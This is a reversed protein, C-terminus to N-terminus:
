GYKWNEWQKLDSKVRNSVTTTTVNLEKAASSMSVYLIGCILVAFKQYKIKRNKMKEITEISHKRNKAAISHKLRLEDTIVLKSGNIRAREILKERDVGTLNANPNKDGTWQGAHATRMLEISKASHKFGIHGRRILEKTEDTHNFGYGGEGGTRLNYCNVNRVEELTVLQREHECALSRDPYNALIEKSFNEKGYKKIADKILKGSGMYRVDAYPNLITSRIGYYFKGNNLNTIKYVYHNIINSKANDM